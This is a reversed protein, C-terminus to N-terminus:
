SGTFLEMQESTHLTSIFRKLLSFVVCVYKMSVSPPWIGTMGEALSTRIGACSNPRPFRSHSGRGDGYVCFAWAVLTARAYFADGDDGRHHNILCRIFLLRTQFEQSGDQM